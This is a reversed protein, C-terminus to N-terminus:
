SKVRTKLDIDESVKVGPIDIGNQVADEIVDEALVTRKYKRPVAAFDVVTWTKVTNVTASGEKTNFVGTSAPSMPIPAPMPQIAVSKKRDIELQKLRAAEAERIKAENERKIALAVPKIKINLITMVEDLPANVSRAMKDLPQTFDLYPRKIQDKEKKVANALKKAQNIMEIARRMSKEDRVTFKEAAKKMKTIQAGFLQTMYACASQHDFKKVVPLKPKVSLGSSKADKTDFFDYNKKM